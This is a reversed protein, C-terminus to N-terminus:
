LYSFIFYVKNDNKMHKNRSRPSNRTSYKYCNAYIKFLSIQVIM